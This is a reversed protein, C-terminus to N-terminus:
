AIRRQHKASIKAAPYRFSHRCNTCGLIVATPILSVRKLMGVGCRDCPQRWTYRFGDKYRSLAIAASKGSADTFKVGRNRVRVEIRGSATELVEYGLKLM